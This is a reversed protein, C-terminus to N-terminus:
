IHILSLLYGADFMSAAGLAVPQGPTGNGLLPASVAVSQLAGTVRADNGQVATGATTGYLVSFTPATAAGSSSLGTGASVTSVKGNFTAWDAASLYDANLISAAPLSLPQGITGNGVLPASASVSQLAGTVRSDNGQVATGATTGYVVNLTPAGSTGSSSLGTGASVSSVKADFATWDSSRLYGDSLANAAALSLPSSITGNGTLPGSATVASLASVIRPDDGAAATGADHGFLVALPETPSGTGILGGDIAVIPM